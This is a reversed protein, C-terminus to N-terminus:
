QQEKNKNKNMEGLISMGGMIRLFAMAAARSETDLNFEEDVQPLNFESPKIKRAEISTVQYVMKMKSSKNLIIESRMIAGDVAINFAQDFNLGAPLESTYWVIIQEPLLGSEPGQAQGPKKNYIVKKCNFGGIEKEEKTTNIQYMDGTIEPRSIMSGKVATTYVYGIKEDNRRSYLVMSGKKSGKDFLNDYRYAMAEGHTMVKGATYILQNKVPLISISALNMMKEMTKSKDKETSDNMVEAMMGYFKKIDFKGGMKKLEENMPNGPFTITTNIVGETFPEKKQLTNVTDKGEDNILVVNSDRASPMNGEGGTKGGAQNGDKDNQGCGIAALTALALIYKKM